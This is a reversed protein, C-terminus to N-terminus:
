GTIGLYKPCESCLVIHNHNNIVRGDPVKRLFWSLRTEKVLKGRWNSTAYSLNVSCMRTGCYNITKTRGKPLTVGCCRCPQLLLQSSLSARRQKNKCPEPNAMRDGLRKKFYYRSHSQMVYLTGLPSQSVFTTCTKERQAM